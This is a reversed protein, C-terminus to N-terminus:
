PPIGMERRREFLGRVCIDADEINQAEAMCVYYQGYERPRDQVNRRCEAVVGRLQDEYETGYQTGFAQVYGGHIRATNEAYRYCDPDRDCGALALPLLVALHAARM